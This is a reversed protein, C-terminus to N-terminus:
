RSPRPGSAGPGPTTRRPRGSPWLADKLLPPQPRGHGPPHQSADQVAPRSPHHTRGVPRCARVPPTMLLDNDHAPTASPHQRVTAALAASSGATFPDTTVIVPQTSDLSCSEKTIVWTWLIDAAPEATAASDTRPAVPMSGSRM